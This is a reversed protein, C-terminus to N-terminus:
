TFKWCRDKGDWSYIQSDDSLGYVIVAYGQIQHPVTIPYFKVIKPPTLPRDPRKEESLLHKDM